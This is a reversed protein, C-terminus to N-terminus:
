EIGPLIEREIYDAIEAFSRGKTDNMDILRSAMRLSIGIWSRFESPLSGHYNVNETTFFASIMGAESPECGVEPAIDCLVGLCCFGEGARNLTGKCQAYEGSRLAAIWQKVLERPNTWPERKGKAVKGM